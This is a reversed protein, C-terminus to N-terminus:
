KRMYQFSPDPRGVFCSKNFGYKKIIALAQDAEAKKSGFDFMWHNGDVIKWSGNVNKVKVNNPNFSVCDEGPLGGQPAQGSVLMYQFSPDPRGVFCSQNMRYHRIVRLAALAENRKSGFDFMWHSGDVIKWSGNINQVKVNNPNFGICDEQIIAAGGGSSKKMTYTSTYDSRGSNDTFHTYVEVRLRNGSPRVILLTQSFGKDFMASIARGNQMPNSSVSPAYLFAPVKGWDCDQPHCKGWAQLSVKGGNETIVLKTVGRTNSDINQWSGTFQGIAAFASSYCLLVFLAIAGALFQKKM